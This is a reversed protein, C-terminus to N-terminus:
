QSPTKRQLKKLALAAEKRVFHEWRERQLLDKLPQIAVPDGFDGLTRAAYKRVDWHSDHLMRIAADVAHKSSFRALGAVAERRVIFDKDQMCEIMFNITPPEGSLEGETLRKDELMAELIVPHLSAASVPFDRSDLKMIKRFSSHEYTFLVKSPVRGFAMKLLGFLSGITDHVAGCSRCYVCNHLLGKRDQYWPGHAFATESSLDARGKNGCKRCTFRM